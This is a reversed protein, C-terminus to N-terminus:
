KQAPAAPAPTTNSTLMRFKWADGERVCFTSWYGKAEIPGFNQGQITTSWQGNSWEENGATGVIHPSYQDRPGIHNSFHVNKFLDAFYKEIAARGYVPGADNVLVADETFTAALAAADGNNFADNTKKSLANLQDIIQPDATDKQQAFTPLAFSIALGVLAVVLRIRM